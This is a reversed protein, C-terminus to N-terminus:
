ILQRIPRNRKKSMYDITDAHEQYDSLHRRLMSNERVRYEFCPKQIYAVNVNMLAASLWFDWDELAIMNEDYGGLKEWLDKRIVACADVYNTSFLSELTMQGPKFHRSQAGFDIREGYTFGIEPHNNMLALGERFYPALLRNDDDLPLVLPSRAADIGTNRAASLGRNPQHIVQYGIDALGSLIALSSAATSGDNVIIIEVVEPNFAYRHISAVSELIWHSPNYTPIVVSLQPALPKIYFHHSSPPIPQYESPLDSSEQIRLLLSYIEPYIFSYLTVIPDGASRHLLRNDHVLGSVWDERLNDAWEWDWRDELIQKLRHPQAALTEAHLLITHESRAESYEFLRKNYLMWIPLITEPHIRFQPHSIRQLADSFDWPTRFIGITKLSPCCHSWFPLLLTSRPDKWAYAQKRSIDSSREVSSCQLVFSHIWSEAEAKWQRMGLCSISRDPTWGWDVWGNSEDVLYESFWRRHLAVLRADERYGAPQDKDAELLDHGFDVGLAELLQCLLSTGCRHLGVVNLLSTKCEELGFVEASVSQIIRWKHHLGRRRLASRSARCAELHTSARQIQSASQEHLRYEYLPQALYFPKGLDALRLSLDYDGAYLFSEDYGGIAHYASSRVLRMHFYIFQVLDLNEQWPRMSRKELGLPQGNAGILSAQTYVFPTDPLDNLFSVATTLSGPTLRDDADLQVLSRSDCNAFIARYSGFTGLRSTGIVLRLRSDQECKHFLWENTTADLADPGDLRIILQWDLFDQHIVSDIADRLWIAPQRYVSMGVCVESANSPM